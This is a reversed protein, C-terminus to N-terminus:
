MVPLSATNDNSLMISCRGSMQAHGHDNREYKDRDRLEAVATGALQPQRDSVASKDEFSRAVGIPAVCSRPNRSPYTFAVTDAWM